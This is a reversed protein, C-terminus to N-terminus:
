WCFQLSSELTRQVGTSSAQRYTAGARHMTVVVVTYSGEMIPVKLYVLCKVTPNKNSLLGTAAPLM